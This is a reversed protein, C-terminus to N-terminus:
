QEKFWNIIDPYLDAIKLTARRKKYLDVMFGSFERFKKFGRNIMFVDVRSLLKDLDSSPAYDIYRLSVLVWNMYENFCFLSNRYGGTLRNSTDIWRNLDAFIDKIVGAYQPLEAEPNIFNHNIETFVIDGAMLAVADKSFGPYPTGSRYPFNVHAQAEKFDGNEFGQASQAGNVLPSFIIKFCNYDTQPFHMRLWSIMGPVDASDRYFAIQSNYYSLHQKYFVRFGSNAAFNQMAPIFKRLSNEDGWMRDFVRSDKIRGKKDFEFCYSDMKLKHYSNQNKKLASDLSLVVPDNKHQGFWDIVEKYYGTEKKVLWKEKLGIDTVALVINFLEYVEPVEVITKGNHAAKYKASFRAKEKLSVGEIQTYATDKNNLLINFSYKEGAKVKFTISDMDTIFVVKRWRGPVNTKYIDPKVLPDITWTNKSFNGGDRISIIGTGSKILPLNKQALGSVSLFLFVCIATLAKM